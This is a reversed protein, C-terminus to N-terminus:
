DAIGAGYVPGEKVEFSANKSTREGLRDIRAEKSIDSARIESSEIRINDRKVAFAHAEPSFKVGMLTLM